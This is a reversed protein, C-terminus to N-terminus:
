VNRSLKDLIKRASEAAPLGREAAGLQIKAIKDRRNREQKNIKTEPVDSSDISFYISPNISRSHQLEFIELDVLDLCRVFDKNPIAAKASRLADQIVHLSISEGRATWPYSLYGGQDIAQRFIDEARILALQANERTEYSFLPRNTKMLRKWWHTGGALALTAISGAVASVVALQIESASTSM